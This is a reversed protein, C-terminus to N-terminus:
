FFFAEKPIQTRDGGDESVAAEKTNQGLGGGGEGLAADEKDVWNGDVDEETGDQGSM